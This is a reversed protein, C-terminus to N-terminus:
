FLRLDSFFSDGWRIQALGENGAVQGTSGKEHRLIVRRGLLEEMQDRPNGVMGELQSILRPAVGHRISVWRVIRDGIRIPVPLRIRDVRGVWDGDPSEFAQRRPAVFEFNEAYRHGLEDPFARALLQVEGALVLMRALTGIQLERWLIIPDETRVIYHQHQPDEPPPDEVRIMTQWSSDASAIAVGVVLRQAVTQAENVFLVNQKQTRGAALQDSLAKRGQQNGKCEILHLKGTSDVGVFDPCKKPGRRASSEFTALGQREMRKLFSMGHEILRYGFTRDLWELSIGMGWDDSLVTKQHADLEGAASHLRLDSTADNVIGLYRVQAWHIAM